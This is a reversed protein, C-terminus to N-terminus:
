RIVAHTRDARVIRAQDEIFAALVKAGNVGQPLRLSAARMLAQEAPDLLRDILAEARPLDHDRRLCLGCGVLEAWIARNVQMDMEAAENPVFLSPVAGLVHEHFSNYGAMCIAADFGQSLRYQPYTRMQRHGPGLLPPDEAGSRIPSLFEIIRAGRALVATILRSRLADLPFNNGGGLQLAVAMADQPLDLLERAAARSLRDAPELHLIPPLALVWEEQDRTPGLDLEGAIEGPEVVADFSGLAHLFPRHSEQWMPRRMWITFANRYQLIARLVGGFPATSDYVVVSPRLHTLLEFVIEALHDNWAVPDLNGNSHHPIFETAFGAQRALSIAYSMSAFVPTLGAPLRNAVAIQQTLHGMGIGNSSLFLVTRESLQTPPTAAQKQSYGAGDALLDAIRPRFLAASHNDRVFARGKDHLEQWRNDRLIARIVSEVETPACYTAADGFLPRMREHLIVPVGVAMAEVIARGFAESWDSSHFFIWFDLGALWDAVGDARFPEQHWLAPLAGYKGVLFDGGGLIRASWGDPVPLSAFAEEATDPWKKPDPRSHRGVVVGATATRPGRSPWQSLDLLNTWDRPALLAGKPLLPPLGHRVVASVPALLVDTGFATSAHEVVRPLNYQLTGAADRLPHHLVLVTRQTIVRPRPRLGHTLVAPHHVIVARATAPEEPDVRHVLGQTVAARIDPHSPLPHRIISGRAMLLGCVLGMRAAEVLELALATSSGGEFRPDAVFILDFHKM